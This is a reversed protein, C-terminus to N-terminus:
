LLVPRGTQASELAALAIELAKYGDEATVIPEKEFRICDIFHELELLYPDKLLPSEPVAVGGTHSQSRIVSRIPMAEDSDHHIIGDSGAIELQTRFGSPYAWTGECHAIIGNKFRLSVLAHDMRNLERGWISKAYVREVEGFCWRLFDFDHIMADLIVTGSKEVNAYWDQWATPFIGGRMTRVTGVQGIAGSVVMDHAKAYEPFFRVVQAIFLHVGENKCIDIMERAEALTRAIPKECIIHKKQRAATEVIRKHLYTPVCVDIVDPNENELVENLSTYAKTGFRSALPAVQDERPDVMGVLKVDRIRTYAQAHMSGMTGAGIVAVKLGNAL